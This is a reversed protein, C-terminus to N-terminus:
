FQVKLGLSVTRMQPFGSLGEPDANVLRGLRHLSFLNTGNLFLRISDARLSRSFKEPATWGLEVYRLKLFSGDM